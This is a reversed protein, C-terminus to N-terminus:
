PLFYHVYHCPTEQNLPFRLATGVAKRLATRHRIEPLSRFLVDWIFVDRDNFDNFDIIIM